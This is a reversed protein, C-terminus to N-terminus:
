INFDNFADKNVDDSIYSSKRPKSGLPDDFDVAKPYLIRRAHILQYFHLVSLEEHVDIGDLALNAVFPDELVRISEFLASLSLSTIIGFFIGLTLSDTDHALQAYSPAYFPPLFITFVRAFARLAQPTRYTKIMRLDEVAQGLMQEWQRIRSAENGPLGARKLVETLLTLKTIRATLLSDFLQHSAIMTEAAEKKGIKTVRHWVRHPCPLTLFRFLEDGIRILQYLAKDSHHLWDRGDSIRGGPDKTSWDWCAHALYLQYSCSRFIALDTLAQERRRFAMQISAAMPTVLVFSLLVWDMTGSWVPYKNKTAYYALITSAVTLLCGLIGNTSILYIGFVKLSAYLSILSVHIASKMAGNRAKLEVAQLEDDRSIVSSQSLVSLAVRESISPKPNFSPGIIAENSLSSDKKMSM